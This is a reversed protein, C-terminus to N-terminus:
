SHVYYTAQSAFFLRFQEYKNDVAKIVHSNFSEAPKVM